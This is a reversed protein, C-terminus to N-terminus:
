KTKRCAEVEFGPWRGLPESETLIRPDSNDQRAREMQRMIRRIAVLLARGFISTCVQEPTRNLSECLEKVPLELRRSSGELKWVLRHPSHYLRAKLPIERPIYPLEIDKILEDLQTALNATPTEQLHAEYEENMKAIAEKLLERTRDLDKM